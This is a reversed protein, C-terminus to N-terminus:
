FFCVLPPGMVPKGCKPCAALKKGCDVCFMHGCGLRGWQPDEEMCVACEPGHVVTSPYSTPATSLVPSAPVPARAAPMEALSNLESDSDYPPLNRLHPPLPPLAEEEEQQRRRELRRQVRRAAKAERRTAREREEAAKAEAQARERVKRRRRRERQEESKHWARVKAREAEQAAEAQRVANRVARREIKAARLAAKHRRRAAAAMDAQVKDCERGLQKFALKVQKDAAAEERLWRQREARDAASEAPRPKQLARIRAMRERAEQWVPLNAIAAEATQKALRAVTREFILQKAEREERERQAFQQELQQQRLREKRALTDRKRAGDILAGVVSVLIRAGCKTSPFVLTEVPSTSQSDFDSPDLRAVLREVSNTNSDQMQLWMPAASTRTDSVKQMEIVNDWQKRQEYLMNMAEEAVKGNIVSEPRMSLPKFVAAWNSHDLLAAIPVWFICYANTSILVQKEADCLQTGDIARRFLLWEATAEMFINNASLRPPMWHDKGGFSQVPRVGWSYGIGHRATYIWKHGTVTCTEFREYICQDDIRQGVTIYLLNDYANCTKLMYKSDKVLMLQHVRSLVDPVCFERFGFQVGLALTLPEYRANLGLMPHSSQALELFYSLNPTYDAEKEKQFREPDIGYFWKALCSQHKHEINLASYNLHLRLIRGCTLRTLFGNKAEVKLDCIEQTVPEDHIEPNKTARLGTELDYKWFSLRAWYLTGHCSPLGYAFRGRGDPHFTEVAVARHRYNVVIHRSLLGDVKPFVFPKDDLLKWRLPQEKQARAKIFRFHHVKLGDKTAQLVTMIVCCACGFALMSRSDPCVGLCMPMQSRCGEYYAEQLPDHPMDPQQMELEALENVFTLAWTKLPSDLKEMNFPSMARVTEACLALMRNGVGRAPGDEPEWPQVWINMFEAMLPDNKLIRSATQIELAAQHTARKGKKSAM